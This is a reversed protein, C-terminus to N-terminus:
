KNKKGPASEFGVIERISGFPVIILEPCASIGLPDLKTMLQETSELVLKVIICLLIDIYLFGAVKLM